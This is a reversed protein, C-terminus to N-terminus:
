DFQVEVIDAPRWDDKRFVTHIKGISFLYYESSPADGDNNFIASAPMYYDAKFDEPSGNVCVVKDPYDYAGSLIIFYSKDYYKVCDPCFAIGNRYTTEPIKRNHLWNYDDVITQDTILDELGCGACMQYTFPFLYYTKGTPRDHDYLRITITKSNYTWEIRYDGIRETIDQLFAKSSAFTVLEGRSDNHWYFNRYTNFLHGVAENFLDYQWEWCDCIGTEKCDDEDCLSTITGTYVTDTM